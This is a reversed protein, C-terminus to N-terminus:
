RTPVLSFASIPPMEPNIQISNIVICTDSIQTRLRVPEIYLLTVFRVIQSLSQSHRCSRGMRWIEEIQASSTSYWSLKVWHQVTWLLKAAEQAEESSVSFHKESPVENEHSTNLSTGTINDYPDASKLTLSFSSPMVEAKRTLTFVFSSYHFCGSSV